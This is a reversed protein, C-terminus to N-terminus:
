VQNKKEKRKNSSSVYYSCQNEKKKYIKWGKCDDRKDELNSATQHYLFCSWHVLYPVAFRPEETARGWVGEVWDYSASTVAQDGTGSLM